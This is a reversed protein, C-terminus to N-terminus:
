GMTNVLQMLYIGSILVRKGDQHYSNEWIAGTGKRNRFRVLTQAQWKTNQPNRFGRILFRIVRHSLSCLVFVIIFLMYFFILYIFLLMHALASLIHLYWRPHKLDALDHGFEQGVSEHFTMFHNYNSAKLNQMSQKAAIVLVIKKEFALGVNVSVGNSIM